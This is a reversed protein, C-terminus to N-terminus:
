ERGGGFRLLRQSRDHGQTCHCVFQLQGGHLGRQVLAPRPRLDSLRQTYGLLRGVLPQSTCM